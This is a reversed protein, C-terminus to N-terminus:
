GKTITEDLNLLTNGLITWAALESIDVDVPPRSTGVHILRNAAERDEAFRDMERQLAARLVDRERQAPMRGLCVRFAYEIRSDVTAGGQKLVRLGLARAAEVYVPDNMLNLAQLPTNTRPRRVTCTERTPADFITFSAYPISRRWYTYLGRRYNEAGDAQVYDRTGEFSVQGWLGPPQFPFVSPGGVKPVLLGSVSMAIDRVGEADVRFRPGRTFLRNEPDKELAERSVVSDQRYTASLVIRRQLAKINWGSGIFETALWDLLDPHSPWDGQSGFEEATKVIGTGFYKQWYQNVAVRATLPHDPDLLWKALGLRNNPFAENWRHLQEPVGMTVKDGRNNYQGRVLVFTDKPKDADRMVMTSAWSNRFEDRERRRAALLKEAQQAEGVFKQRYHKRLLLRQAETLTGSEALFVGRVAEPLELFGGLDESGTTALRFRAPVGSTAGTGSELRVRLETGGAFGFGDQTRLWATHPRDDSAGWGTAPKDDLLGQVGRGEPNVDAAAAVFELPAETLPEAGMRFAYGGAGNGQSLKLVLRNEGARLWVRVPDQDPSATRAGYRSFIRRGNLWVQLGDSSGLHIMRLHPVSVTLTRFLYHATNEGKLGVVEGDKWAGKEEWRIKGDQFAGRTDTASEPGYAKDFAERASGAPFPGAVQWASMTPTGVVSRLVDPRLAKVSAELRSVLFGPPTRDANTGGIGGPLVELRLGTSPGDDAKLTVEYTKGASTSELGISRDKGQVLKPGDTVTASTMEFSSWGTGPVERFRKEWAAQREDWEAQPAELVLKAAAEMAKVESELQALRQRDADTELTMKPVPNLEEADLGNEPVQNFFAFLRYFEKQSIPDYKHDHCEACAMSTGMWVRATTDVRGVVYKVSYEEPLAGGESTTMENRHFGTAVLQDRTPNPLLDGALQETTFQDYPKNDNFARIVWDRWHWLDRHRDHHYGQTEGFRALDLWMQAMREGYHPSALLRDVVKEYAKSDNDALFADLEEVTPPLGTLDLSVRRLLKEKPAPPTPKLGEQELRALVFHDLENIPWGAERVAPLEPRKPTLYAWHGEFKAGEEIWRRLTAIKAPTLPKKMDPPPMIEDPDSELVRAVLASAAVDGGVVARHGSKLAQRAEDERDLRLGAKRTKEDPGHCAYCHESLIPKVERSYSVSASRSAMSSGLWSVLLSAWVFRKFTPSTSQSGFGPQADTSRVRGSPPDVVTWAAIGVERRVSVPLIRNM